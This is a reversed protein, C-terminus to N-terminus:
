ALIEFSQRLYSGIRCRLPEPYGCTAMDVCAAQEHAVPDSRMRGHQLEGGVTHCRRLHHCKGGMQNFSVSRPSTWQGRWGVCGISPRPNEWFRAHPRPPLRGRRPHPVSPPWAPPPRSPGALEVVHEVVLAATATVDGARDRVIRSRSLDPRSPQLRRPLRRRRPRTSARPMAGRRALRPLPRPRQPQRPRGGLQLHNATAGASSSRPTARGVTIRPSPLAPITKFTGDM